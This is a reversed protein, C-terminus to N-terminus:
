NETKGISLHTGGATPNSCESSNIICGNGVSLGKGNGHVYIKGNIILNAGVTVDKIRLMAFNWIEDILKIMNVKIKVKIEGFIPEM